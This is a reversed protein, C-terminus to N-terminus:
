FFRSLWGVTQARRPRRTRAVGRSRQGGAHFQRHQRAADGTSGGNRFLAARGCESQCRNAKVPLSWTDMPCSTSLPPLSPGQSRTPAKPVGKGSFDNATNGGIGLKALGEPQQLAIGFHQIFGIVHPQSDLHVEPQRYRERCDPDHRRRGLRPRPSRRIRAPLNREPLHQWHPCSGRDTDGPRGRLRQEAFDM